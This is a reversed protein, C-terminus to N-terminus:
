IAWCCIEAPFLIQLSSFLHISIICDSFYPSYFIFLVEFAQLVDVMGVHVHIYPCSLSFFAFFFFFTQFFLVLQTHLETTFCRSLFAKCRIRLVLVVVIALGEWLQSLVCVEMYLFRLFTWTPYVWVTVSLWMMTWRDSALSLPYRSLLLLFFTQDYCGWYSHWNRMLFRDSLLPIFKFASDFFFFM